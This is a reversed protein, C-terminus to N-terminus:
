WKKSVVTDDSLGSEDCYNGRLLHDALLAGARAGRLQGNQLQRIGYVGAVISCERAVISCIAASKWLQLLINCEEAAISCFAASRRLQLLICHPPHPESRLLMPIHEARECRGWQLATQFQRGEGRYLFVHGSLGPWSNLM